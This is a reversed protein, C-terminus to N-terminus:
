MEKEINWWIFPAYGFIEIVRELQKSIQAQKTIKCYSPLVHM